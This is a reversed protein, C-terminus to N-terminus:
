VRMRSYNVPMHSKEYQECWNYIKQYYCGESSYPPKDNLTARKIMSAMKKKLKRYTKRSGSHRM